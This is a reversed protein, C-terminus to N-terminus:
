ASQRRKKYELAKRAHAEQEWRNMEHYPKGVRYLTSRIHYPANDTGEELYRFDEKSFREEMFMRLPLDVYGGHREILRIAYLVGIAQWHYEDDSSMSVARLGIDMYGEYFAHIMMYAISSSFYWNGLNYKRKIKEYPYIKGYPLRMSTESLWIQVGQSNLLDYPQGTHEEFSKGLNKVTQIINNHLNYIRAPKYYKASLTHPWDNLTWIPAKHYQEGPQLGKIAPVHCLGYLGAIVVKGKKRM